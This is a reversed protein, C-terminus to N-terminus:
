ELDKVFCKTKFLELNKKWSSGFYADMKDDYSERAYDWYDDEDWTNDFVPTEEHFMAGFAEEYEKLSPKITKLAFHEIVTDFSVQNYSCYGKVYTAEEEIVCCNKFITGLEGSERMIDLATFDPHEDLYTKM